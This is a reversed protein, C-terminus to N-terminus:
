RQDAAEVFAQFLARMALDGPLWEPHWQVALGFPHGSLEFAEVIGDPARATVELGEAIRRVGQHHLSNVETQTLGLIRGLQSASEVQVRHARYDRPKSEFYDHQLGGQVQALIDEYLTGGLAVNVVQLGRCIGLFPRHSGVAEKVLELEVQDRDEDVNQVRPHAQGGYFGPHLDGGGSFLVGDLRALLGEMRSEPLGLPILVPTAGARLLAQIYAEVISILPYGHPSLTRATTIGILPSPM